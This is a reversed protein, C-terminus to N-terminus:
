RTSIPNRMSNATKSGHPTELNVRDGDKIQVAGYHPSGDIEYKVVYRIPEVPNKKAM